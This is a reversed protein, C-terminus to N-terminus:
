IEKSQKIKGKKSIGSTRRVEAVRQCGRSEIATEGQAVSLRGEKRSIVGFYYRNRWYKLVCRLYSLRRIARGETAQLWGECQVM